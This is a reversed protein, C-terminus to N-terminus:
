WGDIGSARTACFAALAAQRARRRSSQSGDVGAVPHQVQLRDFVRGDPRQEHRRRVARLAPRGHRRRLPRALKCQPSCGGYSNDLIGDDCEEPGNKVRRRLRPAPHLGARLRRLRRQKRDRRLRVARARDAVGDGCIGPRRCAATCDPDNARRSASSATRTRSSATAAARASAPLEAAAHESRRLHRLQRRQRRRRVAGAPSQVKGDGCYGGRQCTGHLRRLRRQQRRRRVARRIRDARGHRRLPRAAQLRPRLREDRRLRRRQARQRLRTRTPSWRTAATRAWSATPRASTTAARNERHRQRVARAAHRGQRRVGAQVRQRATSGAVADAQVVVVDEPAGGPVRRGRLRQREDPRPPPTPRRQDHHRGAPQATHIGGLDVALRRNIFVWVDDDGLFDLTYTKTADYPFWYRVESTFSFNHLPAGTETPYGGAPEYPPGITATSREGAPTFTDGDVPFFTPTGDLAATQYMASYNGGEINCSLRTFGMAAHRTCDTTGRRSTCPIPEGTADLVENGVNGCFYADEHGGVARREAGLPQRLRGRRQEVAEAHHRDHPQRRHRQQVVARLQDRRQHLGPRPAPSRRSARPTWCTPWSARHDRHEPRDRGARLRRALDPLRPLRGAGPHQRRAAAARLQLGSEATCTASCGDGSLNNGDECAEASCCATAANAHLRRERRRARRDREPLDCSCGDFPITNGDDCGELGKRRTTAAAPRPPVGDAPHGHVGLRSELPVAASCAMNM